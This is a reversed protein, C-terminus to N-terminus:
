LLEDCILMIFLNSRPEYNIYNSQLTQMSLVFTVSSKCHLQHRCVYVSRRGAATMQMCRTFLSCVTHLSCLSIDPHRHSFSNSFLTSVAYRIFAFTLSDLARKVFAGLYNECEWSMYKHHNEYSILQERAVVISLRSVLAMSHSSPFTHLM